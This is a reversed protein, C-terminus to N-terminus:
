VRLLVARAPARTARAIADAYARVQRRYVDLNGGIEVDTKFDVVTWVTRESASRQPARTPEDAAEEELFALDVVGEVIRGDPLVMEIATERRCRGLRDAAAARRILPHTLARSASDVAAAVEDAAAGLLRGAQEAAGAIEEHKADLPVAALVAHVLSGYRKGSPRRAARRARPM